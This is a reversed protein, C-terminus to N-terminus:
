TTTIEDKDQSHLDISIEDNEIQLQNILEAATLLFNTYVKNKKLTDTKLARVEPTDQSKNASIEPVPLNVNFELKNLKVIDSISFDISGNERKSYQSQSMNLCSAVYEQSLELCRRKERIKDNIKYM